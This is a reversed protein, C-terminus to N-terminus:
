GVRMVRGEDGGEDGDQDGGEDGSDQCCARNPTPSTVLVGTEGRLTLCVQM